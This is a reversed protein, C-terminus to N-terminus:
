CTNGEMKEGTDKGGGQVLIKVEEEGFKDVHDMRIWWDRDGKGEM